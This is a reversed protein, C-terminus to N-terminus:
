RPVKIGLVREANTVYVQELVEPPLGLGDITWRGQIPTPSPIATDNTEFYRWTSDFFLEIDEKEPPTAGTSGLMLDDPHNGVGLDTGFLIRDPFRTFVDRVVARDRHGLEPVRAATDVVLNPYKELMAAVRRPDEPANGFHLGIFTTKPHRAVRREYQAFLEEWTPVNKGAYSWAPHVSLEQLRENTLDVPKWFAVPDATHIAVPLGLEGCKEFFPDLLADDVALLRGDPGRHTLGLQKFVKVGRAGLKKADELERVLTAIGEAGLAARQLPPTAFVVFRDAPMAKMTEALGAGPWGGSLQVGFAIGHEDMLQRARPIADPALHMHVDVRKWRGSLASRAPVPAPVTTVVPPAVAPTESCKCGGVLMLLLAIPASRGSSHM